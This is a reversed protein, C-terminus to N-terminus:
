ANLLFKEPNALYQICTETSSHEHKSKNLDMMKGAEKLNEPYFQLRNEIHVRSLIPSDHQSDLDDLKQLNNLLMIGFLGTELLTQTM